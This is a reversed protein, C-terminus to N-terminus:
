KCDEFIMPDILGLALDNNKQAIRHRSLPSINKDEAAHWFDYIGKQQSPDADKDAFASAIDLAMSRSLLFRLQIFDSIRYKLTEYSVKQHHRIYSKPKKEMLVANLITDPLLVLAAFHNARRERSGNKSSPLGNKDETDIGPHSRIYETDLLVHCLEHACTFYRRPEYAINKNITVTVASDVITTGLLGDSLSFQFFDDSRKQIETLIFPVANYEVANNFHSRVRIELRHALLDADKYNVKEM